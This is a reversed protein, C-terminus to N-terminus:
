HRLIGVHVVFGAASRLGEPLQDDPVRLAHFSQCFRRAWAEFIGPDRLQQAVICVCPRAEDDDDDDEGRRGRLRCVDVCTRVFPEILAENYICDCAVVADFSRTDASGTLALASAATVEDKEWDLPAFRLRDAPPPAARPGTAAHSHDGGAPHRSGRAASRSKASAKGHRAPGSGAHHHLLLVDRNEEINQGVFKAVYPQDTLVYRSVHAALTLGVIASVGCGLELVASSNTLIGARFLVNSPSALWGAFLPTIKWVM